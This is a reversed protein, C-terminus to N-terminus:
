WIKFPDLYVDDIQFPGGSARFRFAIARVGLLSSLNTLTLRVRSSPAWTGSASMSGGDLLALVGGLLSKVVIDVKLTGGSGANRVFFRAHWDGLGFCVTPSLATSGSPLYLSRSDTSSRVYFPENGAVVKAGGSMAWAPTGSEFSGGPVLAYNAYDGWPAFVKSATDCGSPPPTLILGAKASPSVTMALAALSSIIAFALLLHRPHRAATTVQRLTRFRRKGADGRLPTEIREQDSKRPFRARAQVVPRRNLERCPSHPPSHSM